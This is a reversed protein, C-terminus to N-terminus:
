PHDLMGVFLILLHPYSTLRSSRGRGRHLPEMGYHHQAFKITLVERTGEGIAKYPLRCQDMSPVSRM